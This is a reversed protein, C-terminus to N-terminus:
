FTGYIFAPDVEEAELGTDLVYVAEDILELTDSGRKMKWVHEPPDFDGVADTFLYYYGNYEYVKKIETIYNYLEQITILRNM